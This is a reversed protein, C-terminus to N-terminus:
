PHYVIRFRYDTREALARILRAAEADLKETPPGQSARAWRVLESALEPNVNWERVLDDVSNFLLGHEYWLPVDVTDEAMLRVFSMDGPRRQERRNDAEPTRREPPVAFWGAQGDPSSEIRERPPEPTYQDEVTSLAESMGENTRSAPPRLRQRAQQLSDVLNGGLLSDDLSEELLECVHGLVLDESADQFEEDFEEPELDAKRGLYEYLILAEDENMEIVIRRSSTTV